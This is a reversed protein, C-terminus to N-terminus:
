TLWMIGDATIKPRYMGRLTRDIDEICYNMGSFESGADDESLEGKLSGYVLLSVASVFKKDSRLSIETQVMSNEVIKWVLDDSLICQELYEVVMDECIKSLSIRKSRIWYVCAIDGYHIMDVLAKVSAVSGERTFIVVFHDYLPRRWYTPILSDVAQLFAAETLGKERMFSDIGLVRM